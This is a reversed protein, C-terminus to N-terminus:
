NDTTIVIASLNTTIDSKCDEELVESRNTPDGLYASITGATSGGTDQPPFCHRPRFRVDTAGFGAQDQSGWSELVGSAFFDTTPQLRRAGPTRRPPQRREVLESAGWDFDAPNANSVSDEPVHLGPVLDVGNEPCALNLVTFALRRAVAVSCRNNDTHAEHWACLHNLTYQFKDQDLQLEAACLDPLSSPALHHLLAHIPLLSFNPPCRNARTFLSTLVQDVEEQAERLCFIKTEGDLFRMLDSCFEEPTMTKFAVEKESLSEPPEIIGPWPVQHGRAVRGGKSAEIVSSAYGVPLEGPDPFAHFTDKPEVGCELSFKILGVEAPLVTTNPSNIKLFVNCHLVLWKKALLGEGAERVLTAVEAVESRKKEELEKDRKLVQDLPNGFHDYLTPEKLHNPKQTRKKIPM